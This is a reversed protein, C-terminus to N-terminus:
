PMRVEFNGCRRCITLNFFCNLHSMIEEDDLGIKRMDRVLTTGKLIHWVDKSKVSKRDHFGFKCRISM